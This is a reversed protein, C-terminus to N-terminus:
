KDEGDFCWEILTGGFSYNPYMESKDIKQDKYIVTGKGSAIFLHKAEKNIDVPKKINHFGNGRGHNDAHRSNGKEMAYEIAFNDTHWKKERSLKGDLSLPIGIGCDYLVVSFTGNPRISSTYQWWRGFLDEILDRPYAHHNINLYGESLASMLKGPVKGLRKKLHRILAPLDPEASNSIKFPNDEDDWLRKLKAKGGPRIAEHFGTSRFFARVNKDNPLQIKLSQHGNPMGVYDAILQYRTIKAFTIVAAAANISQCQSFDIMVPSRLRIAEEIEEFFSMTAQLHEGRYICINPPAVASKMADM